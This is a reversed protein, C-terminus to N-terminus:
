PWKANVPESLGPRTVDPAAAETITLRAAEICERLVVTGPHPPNKMM